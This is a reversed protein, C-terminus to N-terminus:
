DGLCLLITTLTISKAFKGIRIEFSSTGVGNGVTPRKNIGGGKRIIRTGGGM